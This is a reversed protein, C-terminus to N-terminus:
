VDGLILLSVRDQDITQRGQQVTRLMWVPFDASIVDFRLANNAVWGGSFGAAPITFYPTLTLPNIPSYETSTNGTESLQGVTDGQCRYNYPGTFVLAWRQKISGTNSLEIPYQQQNYRGPILGSQPADFNDAWTEIYYAPSGTAQMDGLMMTSSVYDTDKAFSTLLPPSILLSNNDPNIGTIIFEEILLWKFTLNNLYGKEGWVSSFDPDSKFTVDGDTINDIIEDSVRIGNADYIAIATANEDTSVPLGATVEVTKSDSHHIVGQKGKGFILDGDINTINTAFSSKVKETTDARYSTEDVATSWIIQTEGTTLNVQSGEEVDDGFLVGDSGCLATFAGGTIEISTYNLPGNPIVFNFTDQTAPTVPDYQLYHNYVIGEGRIVIDDDEETVSFRFKTNEIVTPTINNTLNHWMRNNQDWVDMWITDTQTIDPLDTTLTFVIVERGIKKVAVKKVKAIGTPSYINYFPTLNAYLSYLKLEIAGTIANEKLKSIGYFKNTTNIEDSSSSSSSSSDFSMVTRPYLKNNFYTRSLLEGGHIGLYVRSPVTFTKDYVTYDINFRVEKYTLPTDEIQQGDTGEIFINKQFLYRISNYKFKKQYQIEDGSGYVMLTIEGKTPFAPATAKVYCCIYNYITERRLPEYYGGSM